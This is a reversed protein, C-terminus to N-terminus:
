KRRSLIFLGLVLLALVLVIIGSVQTVIKLVNNLSNESGNDTETEETPAETPEPAGEGDGQNGAPQGGTTDQVYALQLSASEGGSLPIGWESPGNPKYGAPPTQRLVYNGPALNEFCHPESMGDTTYTDVVGEAQVLTLQAGPLYAESELQAMQDQNADLYASVCLSATEGSPAPQEGGPQEGGEPPAETAEETPQATPEATPATEDPVAIVIEQGVQLMDNPGLSGANLQRLQDVPVEYQLAIGFLTDGSEVIHVIAGDPRPTPTAVPTPPVPPATPPVPTPTAAPQVVELTASDWWTDLHALPTAYAFKSSVYVTIKGAQGVTGEISLQQWSDLANNEGSWTVGEYWLGRGEPDIGVQMRPVWNGGFSSAPLNDNSAFSYGFVTFRVKAGPTLGEVTQFVGGHWPIYQVGVHQSSGGRTLGYGNPDIEESWIPRCFFDWTEPKEDCKQGSDEHWPAWYSAVGNNYPSEFGPNSLLNQQAETPSTPSLFLASGVLLLLITGVFLLRKKM